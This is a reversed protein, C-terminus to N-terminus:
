GRVSVAPRGARIIEVACSAEASVGTAVSGLLAQRLAGHGHSGVVILDAGWTRAEEVILERPPGELVKTTVTLDARERRLRAASHALLEPALRRLKQTTEVHIAAMVFAPDLLLPTGSHVVTLVELKTGVPWPRSAVVDLAAASHPSGDIALLVKM